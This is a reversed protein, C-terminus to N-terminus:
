TLTKAHGVICTHWSLKIVAYMHLLLIRRCWNYCLALGQSYVPDIQHIAIDQARTAALVVIGAASLLAREFDKFILARQSCSQEYHM